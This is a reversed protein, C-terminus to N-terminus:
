ETRDFGSISDGIVKGFREILSPDRSLCCFNLAFVLTEAMLFFSHILTEARQLATYYDL